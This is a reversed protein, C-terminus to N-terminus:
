FFKDDEATKYISEKLDLVSEHSRMEDPLGVPEKILDNIPSKYVTGKTRRAFDDKARQLLDADMLLDMGTLALVKAAAVAAKRGISTGHSATAMWTHVGVGKPIAPMIVGMTPALWSPDGVDTSAGIALENPNAMVETAMGSQELGASKQLEKAFTIEKQTYEPLGVLELHRQMREAMPANPLVDYLGFYDVAIGTTQTALAAGKVMDKIWAVGEEVFPRSTERYTLKVSAKGPVVNPATGGDKIVYHVRASPRIHERMMNVSHLFIEVADLASRGHWPEMGAHATQGEFEIYMHSLANTKLNFLAAYNYPHWHLMADVDNYLGARAQYTKAGETEEAAAGFVKLTGPIKNEQMLNKIALAAGLAGAGILNHGCAHGATIGDKRPAKYPVAENGLGALADYELFIGLVPKGSGYQAVFATPIGSSGESTLEFSNEKLIKKLYQSSTLEVLSLESYNWLDKSVKNILPSVNDVAAIVKQPSIPSTKQAAQLHSSAMSLCMATVMIGTFKNM